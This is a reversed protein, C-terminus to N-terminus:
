NCTSGAAGGAGPRDEKKAPQPQRVPEPLGAARHARLAERKAARRRRRRRRRWCARLRGATPQELMTVQRALTSKGCGSEGVRPLHPRGRALVVGGAAGAGDRPAQFGASVPYHKTLGEAELVPVMTATSSRRGAEARSPLPFFRALERRPESGAAGSPGALAGARRPLAARAAAAGASRLRRARRRWRSCGAGASMAGRAARCAAGRHYPHSPAEFIARRQPRRSWRAARVDRDGARGSRRRRRPRPHDAGAGHRARAAAPLLLALMQAQITVDLATTPEDAILLTPNCAIAMAIM